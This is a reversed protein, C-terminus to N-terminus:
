VPKETNDLMVDESDWDDIINSIRCDDSNHDPTIFIYDGIETICDKNVYEFGGYYWFRDKDKKKIAISETNIWMINGCQRDINYESPIISDMNKLYKDVIQNVTDTLMHLNHIDM